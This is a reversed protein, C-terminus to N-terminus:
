QQSKVLKSWDEECPNKVRTTLFAVAPQIDYRRRKSLFLVKAVFAHFLKAKENKGNPNIKFLDYNWPCKRINEPIEEPFEAIIGKINSKMDIKVVGPTAYDLKIGLFNTDKRKEKLHHLRKIEMCEKCDVM